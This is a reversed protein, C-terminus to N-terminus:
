FSKYYIQPRSEDGDSVERAVLRLAKWAGEHPEKKAQGGDHHMAAPALGAELELCRPRQVIGGSLLRGATVTTPNACCGIAIINSYFNNKTVIGPM